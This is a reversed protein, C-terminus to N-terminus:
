TFYRKKHSDKIKDIEVLIFSDICNSFDPDINYACFRIGGKECLDSYQKYLTPVTANLISLSKKLNKFNEKYEPSNFEYSLAKMLVKDTTFNYPIKADIINETDKFNKNFFYLLTDKSMKSYSASLSLPGFLYKIDPNKSLYAGIGYWLYDLARSGWYKPQVFSRGLEISHELYPNFNENM